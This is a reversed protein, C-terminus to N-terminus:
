LDQEHYCILSTEVRDDPKKGLRRERDSEGDDISGHHKEREKVNQTQHNQDGSWTEEERLSITEHNRERQVKRKVSIQQGFHM